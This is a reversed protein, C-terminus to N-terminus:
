EIPPYDEDEPYPYGYYPDDMPDPLPPPVDLPPENQSGDVHPTGSGKDAPKPSGAGAPHHDM